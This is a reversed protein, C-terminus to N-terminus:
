KGMREMMVRVIEIVLKKDKEDLERCRMLVEAFEAEDSWDHAKEDISLLEPLSIELAVAINRLTLVSPNAIGREISSLSVTHLEAGNALEAQTMKKGVRFGRIREGLIKLFKRDKSTM